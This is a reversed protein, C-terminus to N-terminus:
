WLCDNMEMRKPIGGGRVGEGGGVEGFRGDRGMEGWGMGFCDNMKMRGLIGGRRGKSREWEM